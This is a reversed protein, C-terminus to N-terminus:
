FALACKQHFSISYTLVMKNLQATSIYWMNKQKVSIRMINHLCLRYYILDKICMLIGGIYM